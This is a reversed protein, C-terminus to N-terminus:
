LLGKEPPWDPRKSSGLKTAVATYVYISVDYKLVILYQQFHVHKKIHDVAKTSQTFTGYRATPIDFKSM